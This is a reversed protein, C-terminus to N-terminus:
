PAKIVKIRMLLSPNIGSQGPLQEAQKLDNICALKRAYV